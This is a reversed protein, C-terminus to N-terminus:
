HTVTLTLFIRYVTKLYVDQLGNTVAFNLIERSRAHILYNESQFVQKEVRFYM